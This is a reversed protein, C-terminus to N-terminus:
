GGSGRPARRGGGRGSPHTAPVRLGHRPVQVIAYAPLLNLRPLLCPLPHVRQWMLYYVWASVRMFAPLCPTLYGLTGTTSMTFDRRSHNTRAAESLTNPSIM